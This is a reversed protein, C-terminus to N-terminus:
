LARQNNIDKFDISQLLLTVLATMASLLIHYIILGSWLRWFFVRRLGYFWLLWSQAVIM